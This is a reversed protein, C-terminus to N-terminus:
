NDEKIDSQKPKRILFFFVFIGVFLITILGFVIKFNFVYRRGQPDYNFCVNLIKSISTGVKGESAEILAMKLEFPLYEKGYIYRTVKGEPSVVVIAAPHTFFDVRDETFHYGIAETLRTIENKDTLLFKWNDKPFTDPLLNTFENKKKQALEINEYHNFSFCILSYDNGPLIDMQEITESMSGMMVNCIGPCTYYIPMIITPKNNIFNKLPAQKGNTDTFIGDLPILNGPKETVGVAPPEQQSYSALPMTVLWIVVIMALVTSYYLQSM